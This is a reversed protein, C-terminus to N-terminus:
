QLDKHVNDFMESMDTSSTATFVPNDHLCLSYVAEQFVETATTETWSSSLGDVLGGSWKMM